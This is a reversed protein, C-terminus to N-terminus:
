IKFIILATRVVSMEVTHNYKKKKKNNNAATFICFKEVLFIFSLFYWWTQFLAIWIYFFFMM